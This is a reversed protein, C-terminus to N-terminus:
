MGRPRRSTARGSSQQRGGDKTHRLSRSVSNEDALQASQTRMLSISSPGGGGPNEKEGFCLDLAKALAEVSPQHAAM